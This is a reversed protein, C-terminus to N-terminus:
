TIYHCIVKLLERKWQLVISCTDIGALPNHRKCDYLSYVILLVFPRLPIHSGSASRDILLQIADKTM